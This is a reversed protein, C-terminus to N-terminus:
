QNLFKFLDQQITCDNWIDNIIRNAPYKEPVEITEEKIDSFIWKNTFENNEKCELHLEKDLELQLMNVEFCKPNYDTLITQLDLRINGEVIYKSPITSHVLIKISKGNQILSVGKPLIISGIEKNDVKTIKYM